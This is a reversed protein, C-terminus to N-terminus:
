FDASLIEKVKKLARGRHSVQAKEEISAEGFTMLLDDSLFIPDYGFGSNGKPERLLRGRCLGEAFRIKDNASDYIAILSRFQAGRKEDPMDKIKELLGNLRERDSGALWTASNM